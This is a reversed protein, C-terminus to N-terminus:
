FGELTLKQGKSSCFAQKFYEIRELKISRNMNCKCVACKGKFNIRKPTRYEIITENNFVKQPKKCSCCYMENDKCPQKQSKRRKNHFQKIDSGHLREPSSGEIILLGQKIWAYVTKTQVDIKEAVEKVTYSRSSSIYKLNHNRRNKKTM